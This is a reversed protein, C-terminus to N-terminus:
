LKINEGNKTIEYIEFWEIDDANLKLFSIIENKSMHKGTITHTLLVDNFKEKIKILYQEM